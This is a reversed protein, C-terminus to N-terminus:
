SEAHKQGIEALTRELTVPASRLVIAPAVKYKSLMFGGEPTPEM